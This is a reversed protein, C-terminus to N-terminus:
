QVQIQKKIVKVQRNEDSGDIFIVEDDNGASILVSRISDKTSEDLPEASIITVGEPHHAQMMGSGHGVVRVDIDEVEMDHAGEKSVFVMHEGHHGMGDMEPLVITEGDIDFQMGDETRTVTVEEGSEGTLTKSEGVALNELDADDSVWNLETPETSDDSKVMVKVEMKKEVEQAMASGFTMLVALAALKILKM